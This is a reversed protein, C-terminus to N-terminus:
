APVIRPLLELIQMCTCTKLNPMCWRGATLDKPCLDMGGRINLACPDAPCSTLLRESLM